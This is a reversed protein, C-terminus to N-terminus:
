AQVRLLGVQVLRARINEVEHEVWFREVADCIAMRQLLSMGQLKAVLAAGDVEWKRDLSDLAIADEIEAPLLQAAQLNILTGNMADVILSAEGDSLQVQTLALDLLTYYRELDRQAVQSFTANTPPNARDTLARTLVGPRFQVKYDPM